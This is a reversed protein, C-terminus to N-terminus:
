RRGKLYNVAAQLLAPDDKFWSMGQDCSHCILSKVAGGVSPGAKLKM